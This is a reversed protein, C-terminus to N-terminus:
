EQFPYLFSLAFSGWAETEFSFLFFDGLCHGSTLCAMNEREIRFLVIGITIINVACVAKLVCDCVDRVDEM